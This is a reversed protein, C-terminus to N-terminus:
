IILTATEQARTWATYLWKFRDAGWSENFILPNKFQSGQAKHCTIAYGFDFEEAERKEWYFKDLEKEKGLFHHTHCHVEVPDGGEWPEVVMDLRQIEETVTIMEVVRYQGGNMIGLENNNRLCIVREGVEPYKDKHGRLARIRDNYKHRTENKGVIVQESDMVLTRLYDPNVSDKRLVQSTGYRGAAPMESNRIRTAVAILPNDKAQRHIETLMLNSNRRTFYGEGGVPPLQFPDGMVLTKQGFSLWDTGMKDNVMSVEDLVGLDRKAIEASPNLMFRPRRAKKAELFIKGEVVQVAPHETIQVPSYGEGALTEKLEKLDDHLAMIRERDDDAPHYMWHHMTNANPCGYGRMVLAAKASYAAFITGQLGVLEAAVLKAISSKGTGAWGALYFLQDPGRFWDVLLDFAQQQQPALDSLGLM